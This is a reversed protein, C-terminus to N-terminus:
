LLGRVLIWETYTIPAVSAVARGSAWVREGDGLRCVTGTSNSRYQPTPIASYQVVRPVASPQLSV